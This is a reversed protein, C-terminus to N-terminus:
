RPDRRLGGGHRGRRRDGARQGPLLVDLRCGPRPRVEGALRGAPRILQDPTAGAAPVGRRDGLRRAGLRRCGVALDAPAPGEPEGPRGLADPRLPALLGLDPSSWATGIVLETTSAAGGQGAAPASPLAGPPVPRCTARHRRPVPLGGPARGPHVRRRRPRRPRHQGGARDASGSSARQHPDAASRRASGPGARRRPAM